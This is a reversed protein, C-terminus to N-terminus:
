LQYNAANVVQKKGTLVDKLLGGLSLGDESGTEGSDDQIAGVDTCVAEVADRQEPTCKVAGCDCIDLRETILQPPIDKALTVTGCDCVSVGDERELAARGVKVHLRDCLCVNRLVKRKGYVADISDFADALRAPLRVTGSVRLFVLESLDAASCSDLTLDGNIYLKGGYKRLAKADLALDDNVFACGEPIVIIEVEEGFLPLAAELLPEAIIATRTLFRVGKKVLSAVDLACDTLVVRRAAFYNATKARLLFVRDVVFTRKLLIADDPYCESAGNVQISRVQAALSEPYLASGNVTITVYHKLADGAGPEITLAGNVMLVIPQDSREGGTITYRGNQSVLRTGAPATVVNACNLSVNCRHLVQASEPSVLVTAANIVVQDYAQLTQEQTQTADCCACNVVLTKGQTNKEEM